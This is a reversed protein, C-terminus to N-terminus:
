LNRIFEAEFTSAFQGSANTNQPSTASTHLVVFEAYDTTGNMPWRVRHSVTQNGLTAAMAQRDAGPLNTAGNIRVWGNVLTFGNTAAVLIGVGDFCYYGAVTPTLRSTNTVTSHMGSGGIDYDELDYLVATNAGSAVTQPTGQRVRCLPKSITLNQQAIFDASAIPAGGAVTM